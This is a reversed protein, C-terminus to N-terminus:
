DGVIIPEGPIVGRLLPELLDAFDAPVLREEHTRLEGLSFWRHQGLFQLEEATHGDRVVVSHPARALFYREVSQVWKGDVWPWAHTRLWVCPGLEVGSIGTEEVIERVICAQHDEGEELGGGPTIWFAERNLRPDDIRFLLVREERDLLIVRATPRVIPEERTVGGM